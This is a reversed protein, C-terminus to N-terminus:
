ISPKDIMGSEKKMWRYLPLINIDNIITSDIQKIFGQMQLEDSSTIESGNKKKQLYHLACDFFLVVNVVDIGYELVKNNIKIDHIENVANEIDGSLYLELCLMIRYYIRHQPPTDAFNGPMLENIKDPKKQGIYCMIRYISFWNHIYEPEETEADIQNLRELAKNFDFLNLLAVIYNAYLKNAAPYQNYVPSYHTIADLLYMAAKDYEATQQLTRGISLLVNIELEIILKNKPHHTKLIDFAQLFYNLRTKGTSNIAIARYYYYLSLTHDQLQVTPYFELEDKITPKGLLNHQYHYIFTAYFQNMRIVTAMYKELLEICKGTQNKFFAAKDEYTNLNRLKHNYGQDLAWHHIILADEFAMNKCATDIGESFKGTFLDEINYNKCALLLMKTRFVENNKLEDDIVFKILCDELIVKLDAFLSDVKENNNISYATDFIQEHITKYDPIPINKEKLILKFLSLLNSNEDTNLITCINEIQVSSLKHIISIVQHHQM